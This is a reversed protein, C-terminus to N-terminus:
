PSTAPLPNGAPVFEPPQPITGTAVGYLVSGTIAYLLPTDALACGIRWGPPLPIWLAINYPQYQTLLPSGLYISINGASAPDWLYFTVQNSGAFNSTAYLGKVLYTENSPSTLLSHYGGTGLQGAGLITSRVTM